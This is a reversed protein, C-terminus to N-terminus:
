SVPTHTRGRGILGTGVQLVIHLFADLIFHEKTSTTMWPRATMHLALRSVLWAATLRGCM